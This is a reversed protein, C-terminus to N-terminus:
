RMASLIFPMVTSIPPSVVPRELAREPTFLSILDVCDCSFSTLLSRFSSGVFVASSSCFCFSRCCATESVFSFSVCSFDTCSWISAPSLFPVTVWCCYSAHCRSIMSVSFSSLFRSRCHRSVSVEIVAVSRAVPELSCSTPPFIDSTPVPRDVCTVAGMTAMPAAEMAAKLSTSAPRSMTACFVPAVPSSSSSIHWITFSRAVSIGVSKSVAPAATPSTLVRKPRVPCASSSREAFNMLNAWSLSVSTEVDISLTDETM